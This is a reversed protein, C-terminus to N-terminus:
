RVKQYPGVHGVVFQIETEANTTTLDIKIRAGRRVEVPQDLAALSMPEGEAHFDIFWQNSMLASNNRGVSTLYGKYQNLSCDILAEGDVELMVDSIGNGIMWIFQIDDGDPLDIFTHKGVGSFTKVVRETTLVYTAPREQMVYHPTSQVHMTANDFLATQKLIVKLGRLNSTGLALLDRFKQERYMNEGPLHFGIEGRGLDLGHFENKALLEQTSYDQMTAGNAVLKVNEIYKYIKDDLVVHVGGVIQFTDGM